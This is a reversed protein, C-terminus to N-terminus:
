APATGATRLAIVRQFEPCTAINDHDCEMACEVLALQAQAKTIIDRLSARRDFLIQRRGDSDRTAMMARIEELGLGAEKARLIMATRVVDDHGYRRRGNGDRDPSLLGMSEWHRLVHTAIGFREALAGIPLPRATRDSQSSKM